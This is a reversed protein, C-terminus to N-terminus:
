NPIETFLDQFVISDMLKTYFRNPEMLKTGQLVTAIIGTTMALM